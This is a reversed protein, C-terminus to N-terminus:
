AATERKIADLEREINELRDAVTPPASLAGPLWLTEIQEFEDPYHFGLKAVADFSLLSEGKVASALTDPHVDLKKALKKWTMKTYNAHVRLLARSIAELSSERDPEEFIGLVNPKLSHM